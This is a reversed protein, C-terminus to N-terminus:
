LSAAAWGVAAAAGAALLKALDNAPCADYRADLSGGPPVVELSELWATYEPDLGQQRCGELLLDRYRGPPPVPRYLRLTPASVFAAAATTTGTDPLHVRLSALRYGVESRRLRQLDEPSVHMLLGPPRPWTLADGPPPQAPHLPLLTAYGGRHAFSLAHDLAVAPQMRLPAVGRRALVAASLNAGYSFLLRHPSAAAVATAAAAPSSPPAQPRM